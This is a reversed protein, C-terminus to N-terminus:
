DQSSADNGSDKSTHKHRHHIDPYHPHTHELREHTHLHSHPEGEPDGPAHEHHHHEDHIHAHEHQMPEHIHRHQHRETLHLWLGAGMFLGALLLPLTVPENWLVVSVVAGIFPALSFYNGTRSTGLKRLARIYLVLSLGYSVFGLLLASGIYEARPWQSGLIVALTLNLGGAAMGKLGAVQVPDRASVKQTVNNDIGWCLCAGAIGLPGTWGNLGAAEKFSLIGGGCVISIMGLAIRWDANERFVIWALLATFVTELNLLLSATAAPTQQLGVLLLLPALVGGFGISTILVPTDSVRLSAEAQRRSRRLLWLGALGPGSGLYLLGALLQASANGLLKKAVPASIGFLLAALLAQGIGAYRDRHVLCRRL